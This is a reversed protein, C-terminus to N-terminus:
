IMDDDISFQAEMDVAGHSLSIVMTWYEVATLSGLPRGRGKSGEGLLAENSSGSGESGDHKEQAQDKRM